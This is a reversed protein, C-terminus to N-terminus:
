KNENRAQNIKDRIEPAWQMIINLYDQQRNQNVQMAAVIADQHMSTYIVFAGICMSLVLQCVCALVVLRFGIGGGNVNFNVNSSSNPPNLTQYGKRFDKMDDRMGELLEVMKQVDTGEAM